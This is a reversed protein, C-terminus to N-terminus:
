LGPYRWRCAGGCGVPERCREGKVRRIPQITGFNDGMSYCVAIGEIEDLPCLRSLDAFCFNRAEERSIKFECDGSAFRMATTGHDIGIFMCTIRYFSLCISHHHKVDDCAAGAENTRVQNIIKHVMTALNYDNVGQDCTREGIELPVFSVPIDPYDSPIRM